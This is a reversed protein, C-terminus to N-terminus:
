FNYGTSLKITRPMGIINGDAKGFNSNGDPGIFRDGGPAFNKYNFVNLVDLRVYVGGYNDNINFNKALSIDVQRFAFVDNFIFNKKDPNGQIPRCVNPGFSDCQQGYFPEGSRLNVKSSFDIGFPLDYTFTSVLVHESVGGAAFSGFAGPMPDLADFPGGFRVNEKADSYTYIINTSWRSNRQPKELKLYVSDTTTEGGNTGLILTSFESSISEGFPADSFSFGEPYFLGGERRNGLLFVFGDKSEVRNYGLDTSWTGWDSRIGLSFQDSYPTDINNNMAFVERSGQFPLNATAGPQLFAPDFAICPANCDFSHPGSFNVNFRSFSQRTAELQLNDFQVRDYTRGYGGYLSHAQDNTLVYNFGVRPQWAGKFNNRNKGNSIYDEVNYGSNPNNINANNRLASTVDDPTVYDTYLPTDEYDWRVGLDLTLRDTVVWEDQFYLGIRVNESTVPPTNANIPQTFEMRFPIPDLITTTDTDFDFNTVNFSYFVQPNLPNIEVGKLDLQKYKFGMKLKHEGAWDIGEWTFDNQVGFGKQGKNQFDPAGGLNIISSQDNTTRAFSYIEGPTNAIPTPNRSANEHTFSLQNFLNDNRYEHTLKLRTEDTKGNVGHERANIGGIGARETESREKWSFEIFHNENINMDLKGFFLDQEFASTFAGSNGSIAAQVNQPLNDRLSEPGGPSLERLDNNEKREYSMFYHLKDKIIPGSSWLGFQQQETDAKTAGPNKENPTRDRLGSDTYDYFLGGEFDNGGRKTVAVISASGIQDFEAKFNSSIIKYEAIASQPFPNGRSSDQGTIGGKLVFDKQSVGDIFVNIASASQAGGRVSVNGDKDTLSTVGPALDAFALFNRNGQPLRAMLEPTLSTGIEAGSTQKIRHGIIVLTNEDDVEATSKQVDIDLVAVQGLRVAVVESSQEKDDVRMVLRYNGPVLGSLSYTGNERVKVTTSYGNDVNIIQLKVSQALQEGLNVTGEIISSGVDALVSKSTMGGGLAVLLAM